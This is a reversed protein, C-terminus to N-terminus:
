RRTVLNNSGSERVLPEPGREVLRYDVRNNSGSLNILSGPLVDAFIYNNSGSVRIEACYGVIDVQNNSGSVSVREEECVVREVRNSGSIGINRGYRGPQAMAISMAVALVLTGSIIATLPLKRRM